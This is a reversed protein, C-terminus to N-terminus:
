VLLQSVSIEVKVLKKFCGATQVLYIMLLLKLRIVLLIDSLHKYKDGDQTNIKSIDANGQIAQTQM